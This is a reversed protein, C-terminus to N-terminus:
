PLSHTSARISRSGISKLERTLLLQKKSNHVNCRILKSVVLFVLKNLNLENTRNAFPELRINCNVVNAHCKAHAGGGLWFTLIPSDREVPRTFRLFDLDGMFM